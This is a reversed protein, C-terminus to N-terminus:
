SRLERFHSQVTTTPIRRGGRGVAGGLHRHSGIGGAAEALCHRLGPRAHVIQYMFQRHVDGLTARRLGVHVRQSHLLDVRVTDRGSASALEERLPGELVGRQAHGVAGVRRGLEATEVVRVTTDCDKRVRRGVVRSWSKEVHVVGGEDVGLGLLALRPQLLDGQLALGQLPGGELLQEVVGHAARHETHDNADGVGENRSTDSAVNRHLIFHLDTM